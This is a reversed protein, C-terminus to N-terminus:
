NDFNQIIFRLQGMKTVRELDFGINKLTGEPSIQIIQGQLFEVTEHKYKRLYHFVSLQLIYRTSAYIYIKLEPYHVITLPNNGKVLFINGDDCLISIAFTGKLRNATKKVSRLSIEREKELLKVVIYSDTRIDTASYDVSKKLDEYNFIVGNHALAFQQNNCGWFPHNNINQLNKRQTALRCHGIVANTNNDISFDYQWAPGCQKRINVQGDEIFAYGSADLGRVQSVVALKRLIKKKDPIASMAGYDLFGFLGCM